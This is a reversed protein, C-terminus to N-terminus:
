DNWISHLRGHQRFRIFEKHEYITTNTFLKEITIGAPNTVNIDFYVAGGPNGGNNQAFLTSIVGAQLQGSTGVILAACAAALQITRMM